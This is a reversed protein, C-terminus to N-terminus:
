IDKCELRTGVVSGAGEGGQKGRVRQDNAIASEVFTAPLGGDLDGEDEGVGPSPAPEAEWVAAEIGDSLNDRRDEEDLAPAMGGGGGCCCCCCPEWCFRAGGVVPWAFNADTDPVRAVSLVGVARAFGAAAFVVAVPEFTTGLGTADVVRVGELEAAAGAFFLGRADAAGPLFGARTAAAEEVVAVDFFAATALGLITSLLLALRLAAGEPGGARFRAAVTM